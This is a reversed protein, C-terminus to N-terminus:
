GREKERREMREEDRRKKVSRAIKGKRKGREKSKKGVTRANQIMLNKMRRRKRAMLIKVLCLTLFSKKKKLIKKPILFSVCNILCHIKCVIHLLSFSLKLTLSNLQVSFM